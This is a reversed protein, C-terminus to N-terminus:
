AIEIVRTRAKESLPLEVRSNGVAHSEHFAAVIELSRMGDEVTCNLPGDGALERLGNRILEVIDFRGGDFAVPEMATGYRTLPLDRLEKPRRRLQWSANLEDIVFRGYTTGLAIHYQVGTDEASDVIGRMGNRFVVTGFGAPDRFQPGRPNPTGTEDLAGMVWAVESGSLYRMLDFIHIVFNGLGTSGSHFYVHRLEGLEHSGLMEKIRTYAASWRRIHNVAVRAGTRRVAEILREAEALSTAMPKECYIRSIGAEAAAMTIEAHTPGNSTVILLDPSEKELLDRYDAYIQNRPFDPLHEIVRERRWDCIAAVECGTGKSAAFHRQGMGGFGVIATKM